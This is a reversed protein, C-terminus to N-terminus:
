CWMKRDHSINKFLPAPIQVFLDGAYKFHGPETSVGIDQLYPEKPIGRQHESVMDIYTAQSLFDNRHELITVSSARTVLTKSESVDGKVFFYGTQQFFGQNTSSGPSAPLIRSSGGVPERLLAIGALNKSIKQTYNFIKPLPASVQLFSNGAYYFSGPKTSSM